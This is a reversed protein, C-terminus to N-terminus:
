PRPVPTRDWPDAMMGSPVGDLAAEIGGCALGDKPNWDLRNPDSPDKRLVAQANAQSVFNICGFADGKGLYFNPDFAAPTSTLSPAPTPTGYTRPVPIYDDDNPYSPYNFTTCAIGDEVGDEADLRNPDSPDYRLVSQAQAQSMFGNCNYLDQGPFVYLSPNITPARSTSNDNNNSNNNGDNDNNNWNYPTATKTPTPTRTALGQRITLQLKKCPITSDVYFTYEHQGPYSLQVTWEWVYGKQGPRERVFTTKETGALRGYPHPRSSTVAILVENGVRPIEPSFTIEEDGYCPDAGAAGTTGPSIAGPLGPSGAAYGYPTVTPTAVGGGPYGGGAYGYPTVTPTAGGAPSGYPTSTPTLPAYWGAITPTPNLQSAVAGAEVASSQRFADALATEPLAAPRQLGSPLPGHAQGLYPSGAAAAAAAQEPSLGAGTLVARFQEGLPLAAVAGAQQSWVMVGREWRLLVVSPDAPDRQPRSMPLGWVEQAFGPLLEHQGTGAPFAEAFRVTGLFAQYFGVAQGDWVDPAHAQIFAQVQVGYDASGPAPAAGALAPDIAPVTRGGIQPFPLAGLGFLDVTAVPGSPDQRLAFDRFLQVRAGHLTFENSVPPGFTRAGGRAAFYQGIPSTSVLYGTDPFFIAAQLTRESELVGAPLAAAATHLAFFGPRDLPGTLAWVVLGLVLLRFGLVM